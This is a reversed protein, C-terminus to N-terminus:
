FLRRGGVRREGPGGGRQEGGAREAAPPPGAPRCGCRLRPDSETPPPSPGPCLPPLLCTKKKHHKGQVEIRAFNTNKTPEKHKIKHKKTTTKGPHNKSKHQLFKELM